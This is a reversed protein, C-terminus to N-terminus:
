EDDGYPYLIGEQTETGVPWDPEDVPPISARGNVTWMAIGDGVQCTHTQFVSVHEYAEEDVEHYDPGEAYWDCVICEAEFWRFNSFKNSM